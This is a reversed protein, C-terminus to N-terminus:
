RVHAKIACRQTCRGLLKRTFARSHVIFSPICARDNACRVVGASAGLLTVIGRVAFMDLEILLTLHASNPDADSFYGSNRVPRKKPSPSPTPAQGAAARCVSSSAHFPVAELKRRHLLAANHQGLVHQRGLRGAQQM